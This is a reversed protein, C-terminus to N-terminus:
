AAQKQSRQARERDLRAARLAEPPIHWCVGELTLGNEKMLEFRRRLMDFYQQGRLCIGFEMADLATINGTELLEEWQQRRFGLAEIPADDPRIEALLRFRGSFDEPLADSVVAMDIDSWEKAEGRAYSGALIVCCAALKEEV